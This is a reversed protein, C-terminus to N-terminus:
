RGSRRRGAALALILDAVHYPKQFFTVGFRRLDAFQETGTYGSALVAMLDPQVGLMHLLMARGSEGPLGYDAVVADFPTGAAAFEAIAEEASGSTVVEAGSERLLFAVGDRILVEDDVMLVRMGDIRAEDPSPPAAPARLADRIVPLRVTFTAGRGPGDSAATVTGQAESVLRHVLPLGLGTGGALPKTTFFPDFIRRIEPEPIGVGTDTVAVVAWQTGASPESSAAFRLVGGDPMADRANTALNLFVSHLAAAELGVWGLTGNVELEVLINKPLSSRLVDVVEHLCPALEARGVFRTHQHSLALMRRSLQGARDVASGLLEVALPDSSDARRLRELAPVMGMLINNFEHAVGGALTGLSDLRVQQAARESLLREETIDRLVHIFQNPYGEVERVACQIWRPGREAEILCTVSGEHAVQATRLSCEIGDLNAGLACGRELGCQAPGAGGPRLAEYSNNSRVVRGSRDLMAIGERQTNFVLELERRAQAAEELLRASEVVLATANGFEELLSADSDGWEPVARCYDLGVVWPTGKAVPKSVVQACAKVRYRRYFERGEEGLEPFPDAFLLPRGERKLTDIQPQLAELPVSEGTQIVGPFEPDWVETLSHEGPAPEATAIWAREAGFTDRALLAMRRLREPLPLGADAGVALAERILAESRGSPLRGPASSGQPNGVTTGV